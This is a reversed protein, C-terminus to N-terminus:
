PLVPTPPTLIEPDWSGKEPITVSMCPSLSWPSTGM